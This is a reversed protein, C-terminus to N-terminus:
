KSKHRARLILALMLLSNIVMGAAVFALGQPTGERFNFHDAVLCWPLSLLLGLVRGAVEAAGGNAAFAGMLSLASVVIYAVLLPM